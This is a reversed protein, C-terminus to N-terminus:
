QSFLSQVEQSSLAKNYIRVEDIIGNFKDANTGAAGIRWRVNQGGTLTGTSATTIDLSGNIYIKKNVGDWTMAIHYWIGTTILSNGYQGQNTAGYTSFKMKTPSNQIRMRWWIASGGKAFVHPHSIISDAKFWACLSFPPTLNYETGMDISSNGSFYLAKGIKGDVRDSPSFGELTGTNGAAHSGLVTNGSEEEFGWWGLLNDSDVANINDSISLINWKDGSSIVELYPLTSSTTPPLSIADFSDIPNGRGSIFLSNQNSTKKIVFKRGTVNGAFPLKTFINDTSTNVLVISSEVEDGDSFLQPTMGFTGQIFFNASSTSSGIILQHSISANGSVHLNTSPSIGIGLGIQNLQMESVGDSQVDFYIVNNQGKVDGFIKFQLIVTFLLFFFKKM